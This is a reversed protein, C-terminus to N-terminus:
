ESMQRYARGRRNRETREGATDARSSLEMLWNFTTYFNRNNPDAFAVM